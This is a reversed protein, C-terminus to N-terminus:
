KEEERGEGGGLRSVTGSMRRRWGEEGGGKRMRKRRSGV